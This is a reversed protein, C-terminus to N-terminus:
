NRRMKAIEEADSAKFVPVMNSKHMTAIGLLNGGTYMKEERKLGNGVGPGESVVKPSERMLTTARLPDKVVGKLPRRNRGQRYALYEDFTKMSLGFRRMDKNYAHWDARMKELQNDTLRKKRRSYNTTTLAPGCLHMSM